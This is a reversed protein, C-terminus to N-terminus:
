YYILLMFVDIINSKSPDIRREEGSNHQYHFALNNRGPYAVYNAEYVFENTDTVSKVSNTSTFYYLYETDLVNAFYQLADNETEFVIFADSSVPIYGMKDETLTFLTYGDSTGQNITGVINNFSDPDIIQGITGSDQHNYFSVTVRSPDVYGDLEVISDDIQWQYDVGLPVTDGTKPNISLVSIKDKIVTNNTYDFNTDTKDIYFGTQKASQFIFSGIRYRVKYEAGTWTFAIMWSADKNTNSISGANSLSFPEVLNINTDEIIKWSRTDSAFRLGFNRQTLCLNVLDNEFSYDISKVFVPIIEVPIAGQGVRNSLIIPGTGDSLNGLGLNSGSAIVQLVTSWVYDVTKNTKNTVIKGNPLFYQPDGLRTPPPVFKVMSGATIYKLVNSVFPGVSQPNNVSNQRIFTYFYGRGQGVAINSLNWQYTPNSFNIISTDESNRNLL